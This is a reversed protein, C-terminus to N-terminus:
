EALLDLLQDGYADLKAPGIGPIELLATETTPRLAAIAELTRDNFVVYAPVGQAKAQGLRWLKLREILGADVPGGGPTLRGSVGAKTVKEGWPLAMVAGTEALKVLAGTTLIEDVTGEYGGTITIQDGVTVFVADAPLRSPTLDSRAKSPEPEVPATGNMEALFRSPRAGDALVTVSVRGRTLAVHFVRREEEIDDSLEHPMSGSDAGFVLVHDWELGKVRHVTSLTVGTPTAPSSLQERLWGEFEAPGPGLAAVRRLATLDDGQAARDARTRGADLAAAARDLGIHTALVDLLRPTSTSAESAYVIDDCLEAWRDARRGDLGEGLEALQHLSFPGRRRGILEGFLRTIGRGPRRIIEFLDNRSMQEPDVAIRIWGLAARLLTRDLIGPTLPSHFPIQRMSLAVHVPLLSSNVRSLVAVASPEVGSGILSAIRDAGVEGLQDGPATLVELGDVGSDSHITKQVRRRNYGLLTTAVEVVDAPCRYNVELAHVAAGPFLEEFDILYGPDAGAYGYIVQDDDGVGFVNLGPGAVLRILLLYAPTLDQFEDVLLHRCQTQWHARLDPLRCLAEIAGYIQEAHDAEGSRELGERYRRFTEAFGPVDDRDVEVLDPHRLGIRVEDLAELYPGIVDTNARPPATAIPELRRRQEREDILRLGPKAMRLIEWGLSHITRVNLRRGEPLREVMEEAARRNYALATLVEPEIGRDEVLHRVRATLVRTKGSGAPAIIRAPGVLHSVAELQDPALELSPAKTGPVPTDRGLDVTEHHIVVEDLYLPQRPGGDVWVPTGDARTVDAPGGLTLDLRAAAKHGWWWVPSDARADYSNHWVAKVLREKPFTFLGGLEYPPADSTEPTALDEPALDLEFVTPTRQVYRRQVDDVTAALRDEDALLAHDIRIRDADAWAPPPPAGLGVVVSRGLQAPGPATM